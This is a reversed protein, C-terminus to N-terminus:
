ETILFPERECQKLQQYRAWQVRKDRNGRLRNELIKTELLYGLREWKATQRELSLLESMKETGQQYLTRLQPFIRHDTAAERATQVRVRAAIARDGRPYPESLIPHALTLTARLEGTLRNLRERLQRLDRLTREAREVNTRIHRRVLRLPPVSSALFDYRLDRGLGVLVAFDSVETTVERFWTALRDLEESTIRFGQERLLQSSTTVPLDISDAHLVAYAHAEASGVRGDRDYDALIRDGDNNRGRLAWLFHAAYDPRESFDPLCRASFRSPVTAFFGCRRAPSLENTPIGGRYNLQAFGGSYCQSMVVQVPRELPSGDLLGSFEVVDLKDRGLLELFNRRYLRTEADTAQGIPLSTSEREVRHETNTSLMVMARQVSRHPLAVAEREPSPAINRAHDGNGSFFFRLPRHRLADSVASRLEAVVARQTLPGTVLGLRHRRTTVHTPLDGNSFLRAFLYEDNSFNPIPESVDDPVQGNGNGFLLRSLTPHTGNEVLTQRLLRVHNEFTVPSRMASQGGGVVLYRAPVCYASYALLTSLFFSLRVKM